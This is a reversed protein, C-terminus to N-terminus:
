RVANGLSWTSCNWVIITSFVVAALGSAIHSEAIYFLWYNLSFLSAGQLALFGHDRGSYRMPRRQVWVAPSNVILGIVMGAPM